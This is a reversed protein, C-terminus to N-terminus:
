RPITRSYEPVANEPWVHLPKIAGATPVTDRQQSSIAQTVIPPLVPVKYESVNSSIPAHWLPGSSPRGTEALHPEFHTSYPQGGYIMPPAPVAYWSPPSVSTQKRSNTSVASTPSYAPTTDNQRKNHQKSSDVSSDSPTRYLQRLEEHNQPTHLTQQQNAIAKTTSSSGSLPKSKLLLSGALIFDMADGASPSYRLRKFLENAELDNSNRILDM